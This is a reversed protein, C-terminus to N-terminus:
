QKCYYEELKPRCALFVPELGPDFQTGMGEIMIAAAQEYGMPEKYCRKSVLADYVDAVAMVRAEVPIQTGSLGEPYGRGDWREHHYRAINYATEVFDQEEVGDLLIRVMEGSKVPHTKIVEFEENTLRGPKCLISSDISMKGLDHLPAARVINEALERSIGANGRRIIEDMFIRVVDSTRKVHGGTNNDRNEIMNAMGVTIRQQIDIIHAAKLALEASLTENYSNMADLVEQEDTADRVDFLFGQKKGDRRMSAECIELVLTKDAVTIKRTKPGGAQYQDIMQDFIQHEQPLPADVRQQKLFPLFEYAKKNCSMFHRKYSIAVYGKDSHYKHQQSIVCAIDHMHMHDYTTAVIVDAFIYLFPLVSFDSQIFLQIGYAVAFVIFVVTFNALVIKSHPGKKVYYTIITLLIISITAVLYVTHFIKLPGSSVLTASGLPTKVVEISSYYLETAYSCWVLLAHAFAVAYYSLKLKTKAEIGLAHMMTFLATPLLVSSDLYIFCFAMHAAEPSSVRSKLWYGLIIVPILILITWSYVSINEYNKAVVYALIFVSVIFCTGFGITAM